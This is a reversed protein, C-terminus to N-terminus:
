LPASWPQFSLISHLIIKVHDQCHRTLSVLLQSSLSTLLPPPSHQCSFNGLNWHIIERNRSLESNHVPAWRCILHSEWKKMDRDLLLAEGCESMNEEMQRRDMSRGLQADTQKVDAELEEMEPLQRDARWWRNIKM